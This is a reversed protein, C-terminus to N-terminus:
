ALIRGPVGVIVANEPISKVVMCQGGVTSFRGIKVNQRTCSGIGLDVGEEINTHGALNVGPALASYRAIFCNHGIACNMNMIVFDGVYTEYNISVGPYLIVGKGVSVHESLWVNKAIFNPYKIPYGSLKNVIQYKARPSAIGIVVHLDEEVYREIMDIGGIVKRGYLDKGHKSKDDDLFGVVDFDGFDQINYSLFGGVSGAGVIILKDKM